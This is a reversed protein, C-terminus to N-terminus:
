MNHFRDDLSSVRLGNFSSFGLMLNHFWLTWLVYINHIKINIYKHLIDFAKFCDLAKQGCILCYKSLHYFDIKCKPFWNSSIISLELSFNRQFFFHSFETINIYSYHAMTRLGVFHMMKTLNIFCKKGVIAFILM